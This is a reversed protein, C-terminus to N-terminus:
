AAAKPEDGGTFGCKPCAARQGADPCQARCRLCILGAGDYWALAPLGRKPTLAERRMFKARSLEAAIATEYRALCHVCRPKESVLSAGCDGCYTPGLLLQIEVRRAPPVKSWDAGVIGAVADGVERLAAEEAAGSASQAARRVMRLFLRVLWVLARM